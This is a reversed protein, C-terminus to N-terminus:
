IKVDGQNLCWEEQNLCWTVKLEGSQNSVVAAVLGCPALGEVQVTVKLEGCRTLRDGEQCSMVLMRVYYMQIWNNRQLLFQHYQAGDQMLTAQLHCKSSLEFQWKRKARASCKMICMVYSVMRAYDTVGLCTHYHLLITFSM